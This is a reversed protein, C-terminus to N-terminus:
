MLGMSAYPDSTYKHCSLLKTRFAASMTLASSGAYIPQSGISVPYRASSLSLKSSKCKPREHESWDEQFGFSDTLLPASHYRYVSEYLLKGFAKM